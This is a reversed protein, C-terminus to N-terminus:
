DKIVCDEFVIKINDGEKEYSYVDLIIYKSYVIGDERYMELTFHCPKDELIKDNNKSHIILDTWKTRYTEFVIKSSQIVDVELQGDTHKYKFIAKKTM